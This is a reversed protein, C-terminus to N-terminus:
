GSVWHRVEGVNQVNLAQTDRVSLQWGNLRAKSSWEAFKVAAGVLCYIGASRRVM